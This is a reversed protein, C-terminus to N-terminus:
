LYRYAAHVTQIQWYLTQGTQGLVQLPIRWVQSNRNRAKFAAASRKIHYLILDNASNSEWDRKWVYIVPVAINVFSARRKYSRSAFPFCFEFPLNDQATNAELFLYGMIGTFEIIQNTEKGIRLCAYFIAMAGDFQRSVM